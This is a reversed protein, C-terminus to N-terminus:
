FAGRIWELERVRGADDVTVGIVDLRIADHWPAAEMVLWARALRRLRRQKRPGVALAPATPGIVAGAHGAKVEVFALTTGDMAIIDLEGAIALEAYRIRANRAVIRCGAARLHRVALEEADDGFRKRRHAM